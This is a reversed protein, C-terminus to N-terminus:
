ENINKIAESLIEIIDENKVYLDKLDNKAKYSLKMDEEDIYKSGRLKMGEIAVWYALKLNESSSEFSNEKKDASLEVCLTDSTESDPLKYNVSVSCLHENDKSVVNSYKLDSKENESNNWIVHYIAIGQGDSGLPESIVTDDKFEEHSLSRNEYGILRYEKIFKPNFEVQVKVDKAITHYMSEFNDLINFKVDEISDITCYNGNGNKSLTELKDDQLNFLGTGIVSLLVGSKKKELILDKLGGKSTIGFNLDGDTILIVRNEGDVRYKEAIRYAEEIGASGYTCGNIEVQYFYCLLESLDDTIKVNKFITHDEDSYTVLSLRDGKNMKAVTTMIAMTSYVVNCGMSGSTDLLLVFHRNKVEKSASKVGVFIIGNDKNISCVDTNINFIRKTPKSLDYKFINLLEEIRVVNSNHRYSNKIRNTLIGFAATNNTLRFTSTPSNLVNKFGKEEINEYSSYELNNRLEVVAENSMPVFNCASAEFVCDSEEVSEDCFDKMVSDSVCNFTNVSKVKKIPTAFATEKGSRGFMGKFIAGKRRDKYDADEEPKYEDIYKGYFPISIIDRLTKLNEENEFILDCIHSAFSGRIKGKLYKEACKRIGSKELYRYRNRSSDFPFLSIVFAEEAGLGVKSRYFKYNKLEEVLGRKELFREFDRM